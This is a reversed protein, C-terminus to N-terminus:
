RPNLLVIQSIQSYMNDYTGRVNLTLLSHSRLDSISYRSLLLPLPNPSFGYTVVGPVSFVDVMKKKPTRNNAKSIEGRGKDRTGKLPRGCGVLGASPSISIIKMMKIGWSRLLGFNYSIPPFTRIVV